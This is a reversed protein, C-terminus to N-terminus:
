KVRTEWEKLLKKPAQARWVRKLNERIWGEDVKDPHALICPYGRHHDTTFFTDPDIELLLDREAFDMKFVPANWKPNWYFMAKKGVRIVPAGFSDGPETGPLELAIECLRELTLM